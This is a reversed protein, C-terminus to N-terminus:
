QEVLLREQLTSSRYNALASHMSTWATQLEEQEQSFSRQDEDLLHDAVYSHSPFPYSRVLALGRSRGQSAERLLKNEVRMDNLLRVANASAILFVALIGGFGLMLALRLGPHPHGLPVPDGLSSM